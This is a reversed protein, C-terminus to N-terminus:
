RRPWTKSQSPNPLTTVSEARLERSLDHRCPVKEALIMADHGAGSVMRHPECGATRIAHEIEDILSSTWRWPRQNLLVKSEISLGRRTAIEKAARTLDDVARTAFEDMSHRVDVTLRAEGAIVNTAGPKAEIKGVTAVFGPIGRAEREVATIWEAAGALADHRLHMPTTGAHNAAVM